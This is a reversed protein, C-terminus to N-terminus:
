GPLRARSDAQLLKTAAANIRAVEVARWDRPAGEALLEGGIEAVVRRNAHSHPVGRDTGTNAAFKELLDHATTSALALEALKARYELEPQELGPFQRNDAFHQAEHVLYSVRFTESGLDYASRVAYLADPKTWGGSHSAGCTAFGAWGLSIFDDMFVVRVSQRLEPLVVDYTEYAQSKWLMFERFPLTKGHLSYAGRAKIMASLTRELEDVSEEPRGGSSAVLSNLRGLLWGEAAAPAQESRLARLWYEQYAELTSALFPDAMRPGAPERRALRELMCERRDRLRDPLAAHDIAELIGIARSGEGQLVAAYADPLTPQAGDPVPRPAACGALCFTLTSLFVIAPRM